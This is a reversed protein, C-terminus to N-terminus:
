EELPYLISDINELIFVPIEPFVNRLYRQMSQLGYQESIYHDIEILTMGLERAITEVVWNHDSSILVDVGLDALEVIMQDVFGGGPIYGIKANMCQPNLIVSPNVNMSYMKAVVDELPYKKKVIGGLGSIRNGKYTLDVKDFDDKSLDLHYLFSDGIGDAMVDWALHFNYINFDNARAQELMGKYVHNNYVSIKHHSIVLSGPPVRALNWPDPNIMLYIANIEDVTKIEYGISINSDERNVHAYEFEYAPSRKELLEVVADSSEWKITADYKKVDTLMPATIARNFLKKDEFTNIGRWRDIGGELEQVDQYGLNKLELAAQTSLQDKKNQSYVIISKNQPLQFGRCELEILPLSVAGPIHDNRYDDSARVDLLIFDHKQTRFQQLDTIGIRDFM